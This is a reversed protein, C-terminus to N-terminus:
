ATAAAALSPRPMAREEAYAKEAEKADEVRGTIKAKFDALDGRTHALIFVHAKRMEEPKLDALYTTIGKLSEEVKALIKQDKKLEADDQVDALMSKAEDFTKKAKLFDKDMDRREKVNAFAGLINADAQAQAEKMTAADFESWRTDLTARFNKVLEDSPSASPVTAPTNKPTEPTTM